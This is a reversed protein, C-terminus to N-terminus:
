QQASIHGPRVATSSRAPSGGCTFREVTFGPGVFDVLFGLAKHQDGPRDAAPRVALLECAAAPFLARDMGGDQGAV